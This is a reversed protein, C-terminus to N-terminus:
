LFIDLSELIGSSINFSELFIETLCFLIYLISCSYTSPGSSLFYILMDGLTSPLIIDKYGQHYKDKLFYM